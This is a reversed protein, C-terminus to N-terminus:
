DIDFGCDFAIREMEDLPEGCDMVFSEFLGRPIIRSEMEDIENDYDVLNLDNAIHQADDFKEIDCEIIVLDGGEVFKDYRVVTHFDESDKVILFM